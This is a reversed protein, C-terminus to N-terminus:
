QNYYIQYLQSDKDKIDVEPSNACVLTLHSVRANGACNEIFFALVVKLYYFSSAQFRDQVWAVRTESHYFDFFLRGVLMNLCLLGQDIEKAVRGNDHGHSRVVGLMKDSENDDKQTTSSKEADSDSSTFEGRSLSESSVQSARSASKSDEQDDSVASEEVRKSSGESFSSLRQPSNGVEEDANSSKNNDKGKSINRRLLTNWIMRKKSVTEEPNKHDDVKEEKRAAATFHNADRVSHFSTVYPVHREAGDTYERFEKKLGTCWDNARATARLVECWAEKEYGSEAYFLCGKCGRYLTRTPHHLKLPFRKARYGRKWAM